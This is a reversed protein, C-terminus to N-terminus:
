SWNVVVSPPMEEAKGRQNRVSCENAENAKVCFRVVNYDRIRTSRGASYGNSSDVCVCVYLKFFCTFKEGKFFVYQLGDICALTTFFGIKSFSLKKVTQKHARELRGCARITNTHEFCVNYELSIYSM